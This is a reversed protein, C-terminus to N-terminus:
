ECGINRDGRGPSTPESREGSHLHRPQRNGPSVGRARDQRGQRPQGIAASGMPRGQSARASLPSHGNAFVGDPFLVLIAMLWWKRSFFPGFQVGWAPERKLRWDQEGM